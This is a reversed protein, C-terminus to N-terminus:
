RWCGPLSDVLSYQGDHEDELTHSPRLRVNEKRLHDLALNKAIQYLFPKPYAVEQNELAHLMKLYAAHALDEATQPCGVIGFITRILSDRHSLFLTDINVALDNM